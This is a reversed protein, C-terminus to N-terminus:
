GAMKAFINQFNVSMGTKTATIGAFLSWQGFVPYTIEAMLTSILWWKREAKDISDPNRETSYENRRVRRGGELV